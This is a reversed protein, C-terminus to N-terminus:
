VLEIEFPQFKLNTNLSKKIDEKAPISNQSKIELWLIRKGNNDVPLFGWKKLTLKYDT